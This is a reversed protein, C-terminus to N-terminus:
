PKPLRGTLNLVWRMCKHALDVPECFMMPCGGAIVAIGRERCLRVAEGSVSGEGFSRHLWVRPVGTEVCAQVVQASVNPHTAVVVGDVTKPIAALNAYCQDGEVEQANPNVAFVEHGSDRLKKYIFNAPAAGSRSVGAVAIREQALFDAVTEKLTAM